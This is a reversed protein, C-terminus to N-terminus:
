TKSAFELYQALSLETLVDSSEAADDPEFYTGDAGECFLAALMQVQEHAGLLAEDYSTLPAGIASKVMAALFNSSADVDKAILDAGAVDYNAWVAYVTQYLRGRHQGRPESDVPYLTSNYTSALKPQHDGFFVLIVPRDIEKLAAVFEELDQDSSEICGLYESLEDQTGADIGEVEYSQLLEDPINHQDYGSHNQITVDFIFQPSDDSELLDLILDYTESDRVRGHFEEADEFSDISYFTDFGMQRYVRERGWSTAKNPHIVSTSYGLDGFYRALSNTESFDYLQYPYTGSSLYAMSCQSLFEFETNCTGGGLVSVGFAGTMLSEDSFEGLFYDPGGYGADALAGYISMDSFTENMIVIVTPQVEEFQTVAAGHAAAATSFEYATALDAEAEKAVAESYGAPVEIPIDQIGVVFSPIFGQEQYSAYTTWYSLDLGLDRWSPVLTLAVIAAVCACCGALWLTTRRLSSRFSGDSQAAHRPVGTAKAPRILSAAAIGVCVIAMDMMVRAGFTYTYGGMVSFATNFVLFDTPLIASSKFNIVFYQAAGLVGFAAVVVAPGVGHGQSLCWAGVVIFALYTLEVVLGLHTFEFVGRGNYAVELALFATVVIIALLCTTSIRRPTKSQAADLRSLLEERMLCTLGSTLAVVAFVAVRIRSGKNVYVGLAAWITFFLLIIVIASFYALSAAPVKKGSRRLHVLYGAGLAVLLALITGPIVAYDFPNLSLSIRM